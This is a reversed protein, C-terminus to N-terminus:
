GDFWRSEFQLKFDGIGKGAIICVVREWSAKAPRADRASAWSVVMTLPAPVSAVLLDLEGEQDRVGKKEETARGRRLARFGM